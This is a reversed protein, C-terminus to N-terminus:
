KVFKVTQNLGNQNTITVFYVGNSLDEINIKADAGIMSTNLLQQGSVNTICLHSNKLNANSLNINLVDTAPNPYVSIKIENNRDLMNINSTKIKAFVIEFRANGFTFINNENIEFNYVDNDKILTNTNLFRDILYTEFTYDLTNLDTFL